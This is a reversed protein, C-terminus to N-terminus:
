LYPSWDCGQIIIELRTTTIDPVLSPMHAFMSELKEEPIVMMKSRPVLEAMPSPGDLVLQGGDVEMVDEENKTEIDDGSILYTAHLPQDGHSAKNAEYFATLASSACSLTNDVRIGSM